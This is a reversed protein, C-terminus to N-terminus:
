RGSPEQKVEVDHGPISPWRVTISVSDELAHWAHAMETDFVVYDGEKELVCDRDPFSMVFKGKILISLTKASSSKTWFGKKEGAKHTGWKIEVREDFFLGKEPEIFHGILWQRPNRDNYANGFAIKNGKNKNEM